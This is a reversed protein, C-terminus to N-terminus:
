KRIVMGPMEPDRAKFGFKEYFPAVGRNAMLCILSSPGAHSDIYGMLSEMILKGVGRGWHQEDVAVDVVDFFLGGDGIIRGIGIAVGEHEICVGFLTHALGREAASEDKVTLGAAQRVRNYESV